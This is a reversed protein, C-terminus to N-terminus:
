YGADAVPCNPAHRGYKRYLRCENKCWQEAMRGIEILRALARAEAIAEDETGWYRIEFLLRGDERVAVIWPNGDGTAPLVEMSTAMVNKCREHTTIEHNKM